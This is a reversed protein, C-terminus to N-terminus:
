TRLKHVVQARITADIDDIEECRGSISEQKMQAEGEKLDIAVITGGKIETKKRNQNKILSYTVKGSNFSTNGRLFTVRLVCSKVTVIAVEPAVDMVLEFSASIGGETIEGLKQIYTEAGAWSPALLLSIVLPIWQWQKAM